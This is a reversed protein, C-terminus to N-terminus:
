GLIFRYMGHPPQLLLNAESNNQNMAICNVYYQYKADSDRLHREWAEKEEASLVHEDILSTISNKLNQLSISVQKFIENYIPPSLFLKTLDNTELLNNFSKSNDQCKKKALKFKTEQDDKQTNETLSLRYGNLIQPNNEDGLPIRVEELGSYVCYRINKM